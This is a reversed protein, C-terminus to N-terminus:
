FALREAAAYTVAPIWGLLFPVLTTTPRTSGSSVGIRVFGAKRYLGWTHACSVFEQKMMCIFSGLLTAYEPGSRERIVRESPTLAASTMASAWLLLSRPEWRRRPRTSDTPPYINPSLNPQQSSPLDNNIRLTNDTSVCVQIVANM